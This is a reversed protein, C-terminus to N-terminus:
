DDRTMEEYHKLFEIVDDQTFGVNGYSYSRPYYLVLQWVGANTVIDWYGGHKSIYKLTELVKNM